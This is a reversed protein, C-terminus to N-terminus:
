GAARWNRGVFGRVEGGLKAAVINRPSHGTGVMLKVRARTAAVARTAAEDAPAALVVPTGAPISQTAVRAEVERIGVLAADIKKEDLRINAVQVGDRVIRAREAAKISTEIQIEKSFGSSFDRSPFKAM